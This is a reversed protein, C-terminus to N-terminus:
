NQPPSAGDPTGNDDLTRNSSAHRPLTCWQNLTLQTVRNRSTTGSSRVNLSQMWEMTNWIPEVEKQAAEPDFDVSGMKAEMTAIAERAISSALDAQHSRQQERAENAALQFQLQVGQAQARDARAESIKLRALLREVTGKPYRDINGCSQKSAAIEEVINDRLQRGRFSAQLKTAALAEEESGVLPRAHSSSSKGLESPGPKPQSQKPLHSSQHPLTSRRAHQPLQRGSSVGAVAKQTAFM